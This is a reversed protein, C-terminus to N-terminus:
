RARIMASLEDGARGAREADPGPKPPLGWRMARWATPMVTATARCGCCKCKTSVALVAQAAAILPLLRAVATHESGNVQDIAVRSDGHL